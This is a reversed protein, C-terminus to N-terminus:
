WSLEFEINFITLSIGNYWDNFEWYVSLIEINVQAIDFKSKWNVKINFNM